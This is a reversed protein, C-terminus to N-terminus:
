RMADPVIVGFSDHRSQPLGVALLLHSSHKSFFFDIKIGRWRNDVFARPYSESHFLTRM